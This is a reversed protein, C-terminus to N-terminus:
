WEDKIIVPPQMGEELSEILEKVFKDIQELYSGCTPCYQADDETIWRELPFYSTQRLNFDKITYRFRDQKCEIKFTYGIAKNAPLINGDEDFDKMGIRHKGVILTGERDRVKTVDSPNKYFSNIWSIARLYLTDASGQVNVFEKYTILNTNEDVPVVDSKQAQTSAVSLLLVISLIFLKKM